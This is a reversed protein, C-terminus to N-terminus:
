YCAFTCRVSYLTRPTAYACLCVVGYEREWISFTTYEYFGLRHFFPFFSDSQRVWM